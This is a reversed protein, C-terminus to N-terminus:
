FQCSFCSIRINNFMTSLKWYKDAEVDRLIPITYVNSDEDWEMIEGINSLDVINIPTIQRELFLIHGKILNLRIVDM